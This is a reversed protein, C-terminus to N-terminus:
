KATASAGVALAYARRENLGLDAQNVLRLDRIEYRSPLGDSFLTADFRLSLEGVGAELWAASQAIAYPRLEGRADPAYLVGQVQYRSARDAQVGFAVILEGRASGETRAAGTLRASPVVVAVATEAIREVMLGDATVGAAHIEVEWLEGPRVSAVQPVVSGRFSGDAAATLVFEQTEGSPGRLVGQMRQARAADLRASIPLAQGALVTDRGAVANLVQDSEPEFVHVLYRGDAAAGSIRYSGAGLEPALRFASTGDPFAALGQTLDEPRYVSALASGNRHVIGDKVVSLSQPDISRAGSELAPSIRVLAGARTTHVDVGQRLARADTQFWYERSAAQYPAPHESLTENPDLRWSVSVPTRDLDSSSPANTPFADASSKVTSAVLDLDGVPLLQRETAALAGSAAIALALVLASSHHIKM